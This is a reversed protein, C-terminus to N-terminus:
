ITKTLAKLEISCFEDFKVSPFAQLMANSYSEKGKVINIGQNNQFWQRITKMQAESTFAMNVKITALNNTYDEKSLMAGGHAYVSSVTKGSPQVEWSNPEHNILMGNFYLDDTEGNKLTNIAM